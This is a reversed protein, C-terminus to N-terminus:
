INIKIGNDATETPMNPLSKPYEVLSLIRDFRVWSFLYVLFDVSQVIIAAGLAAGRAIRPWFGFIIFLSYGYRV